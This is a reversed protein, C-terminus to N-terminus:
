EANKDHSAKLVLSFLIATACPHLVHASDRLRDRVVTLGGVLTLQGDQHGAEVLRCCNTIADALGLSKERGACNAAFHQDGVIAAAVIRAGDCGSQARADHMNLALTIATRKQAADACSATAMDDHTIGVAAVIKSSDLFEHGFM